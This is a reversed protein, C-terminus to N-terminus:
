LFYNGNGFRLGRFVFTQISGFKGTIDNEGTLTGEAKLTLTLPDRRHLCIARSAEGDAPLHRKEPIAMSAPSRSDHTPAAPPPEGRPRSLPAGDRRRAAPLIASRPALDAM